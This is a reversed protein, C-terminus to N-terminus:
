DKHVKRHRKLHHQRKFKSPCKDCSYPTEGTHLRIHAYLSARQRFRKECIDCLFPREGTHILIHRNRTDKLKFRKDCHNCTYPRDGRHAQRKHDKMQQVSAFEKECITCPYLKEGTRCPKHNDIAGPESFYRGCTECTNKEKLHTQIHDELDKSQKFTVGCSNCEFPKEEMDRAYQYLDCQTRQHSELQYMLAFEKNCADCKYSTEDAHQKSHTEYKRFPIFRNCATCFMPPEEQMLDNDDFEFASDPFLEDIDCENMNESEKECIDEIIETSNLQMEDENVNESEKECIDEIIETSNLQMEDENVNESEKGYIDEIIETSNLQMEDEDVNESEKECIDETMENSNLQIEDETAAVELKLINDDSKGSPEVAEDCKLYVLKNYDGNEENPPPLGLEEFRIIVVEDEKSSITQEYDGIEINGDNDISLVTPLRLSDDNRLKQDSDIAMLKFNWASILKQICDNCMYAPLEDEQEVKVTTCDTLIDSLLINSEYHEFIAVSSESAHLCTRCVVIAEESM